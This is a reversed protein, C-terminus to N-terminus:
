ESVMLMAQDLTPAILITRGNSCFTETPTVSCGSSDAVVGYRASAYEAIARTFEALDVDTDWELRMYLAQQTGDSYIHYIDGGWGAVAAAADVDSLQQKLLEGLYFEGLTGEDALSWGAGIKQASNVVTVAIPLEGALYKEPHLIQETSVPPQAFAANIASWGQQEYLAGVFTSGALYPFLLESGIIEPTGEPLTLNGAQVGGLLVGALTGLPDRESEAVTYLNMMYTADGEVLALRALQEDTSFDQSAELYSTLDFAEDQLAHTYEHVYLIRELIPLRDGLPRNNLLVVNMEKTEPDYFGGVQSGLLANMEGVLDVDKPLFNFITYFRVYRDLLEPTYATDFLTAIYARIEPRTPFHLPLAEPLTLGRATQTYDSLLTINDKFAESIDPASTDQANLPLLLLLSCFFGILPRM